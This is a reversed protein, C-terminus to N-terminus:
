SVKQKCLWVVPSFIDQNYHTLNNKISDEVIASETIECWNWIVGSFKDYFLPLSDCYDHAMIFDNPKIYKGILNFEKIKQIGDCLVLTTGEGKIYEIVEPNMLTYDDNFINECRFDVNYRGTFGCRFIDYSRIDTNLELDNCCVRLFCTFGGDATGIELIRKPRITSLFEYFVRFVNPNQMCTFGMFASTSDNRSLDARRTINTEIDMIVGKVTTIEYLLYYTHNEM